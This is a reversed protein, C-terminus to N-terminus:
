IVRGGEPRIRVRLCADPGFAANMLDIYPAAADRPMLAEVTGAFGGGHIRWAGRGSLATETMALALAASRENEDRAPWINQLREMSSRGSDNMIAMYARIDRAEIADAAKKARETESFFHSARLLARDSALSGARLSPLERWFAGADARSLKDTGFLEAVSRMDNVITEYEDTLGAHSGGANVIVLEYGFSSFDCELRKAAPASMDAFDMFVAGGLSVTLQDMLGCPKGFYENEAYRGAKAKEMPDIERGALFSFITAILTEYAASSSLGAGSPVTSSLVADFGHPPIGLKALSATVGRVLAAGTGAEGPRRELSSLELEADAGPSFASVRMDDRPSVVAKIDRDIAAALVRGGQHDTHNGILEVRGPSSVLFCERAGFRAFFDEALATWDRAAEASEGYLRLFAGGPLERAIRERVEYYNMAKM